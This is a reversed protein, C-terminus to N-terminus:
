AFDEWTSVIIQTLDNQNLLEERENGNVFIQHYHQYRIGAPSQLVWVLRLCRLVMRPQARM